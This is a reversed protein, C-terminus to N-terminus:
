IVTTKKKYFFDLLEVGLIVVVFYGFMSNYSAGKGSYVFFSTASLPLSILIIKLYDWRKRKVVFILFVLAVFGLYPFPLTTTFIKLVRKLLIGAYWTPNESVDTIVKDKIVKEYQPIEDFKIYYLKASDYYNDTYLKGSYNLHLGYKSNLIPMAFQYAVTDNWAYGYQTDYDGLGCFIPHWINHGAIRKGNYVHGGKSAVMQKAAQFKQEFHQQIVKKTGIFFILALAVFVFKSRLSIFSSLLLLLLVCILVMSIENRIESCFAILVSSVSVIGLNKLNLGVQQFLFPLLLGFCMFFVSAQLAFINENRFIEFHFFPTLLISICLVAGMIPKGVKYFGRYLFLLGLLFFIANFLRLSPAKASGEVMANPLYCWIRAHEGLRSWHMYEMILNEGKTELLTQAGEKSYTLNSDLTALPFYGTYYYFYFFRSAYHHEFGSADKRTQLNGNYKVFFSLVYLVSVAMLICVWVIWFAMRSQLKNNIPSVISM